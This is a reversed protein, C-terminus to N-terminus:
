SRDSRSEEHCPEPVSIVDDHAVTKLAPYRRAGHGEQVAIQAVRYEAKESSQEEAGLNAIEM